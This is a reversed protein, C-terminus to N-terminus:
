SLKNVSECIFQAQALSLQDSIPLSLAQRALKVACPYTNKDEEQIYQSFVGLDTLAVPYHIATEIGFNALGAFLLDRSEHLVVYLHFAHSGPTGLEPLRMLEPNINKSYYNAVEQRHAIWKNLMPLKASLIAAQLGDLRSNRGIRNHKHKKIQGHNGIERCVKALKEDNTVICGADGYAGLNKGPFFSFTGIHGVNGVKVDSAVLAGHAQACDEILFIGTAECVKRLRVVDAANGYLHVAIIAKTKRTITKEVKDVDICYSTSDIDVFRPSAGVRVVAEATSIWTMAPVIVEDGPGIGLAELAIEIADTGNACGVCYQSRNWNAFDVEFSKVKEGLIFSSSNITSAIAADIIERIELYQSKLNLFPIREM